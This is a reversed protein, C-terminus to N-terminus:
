SVEPSVEIPIGFLPDYHRIKTSRKNLKRNGETGKESQGIKRRLSNTLRRLRQYIGLKTKRDSNSRSTAQFLWSKGAKFKTPKKKSKKPGRRRRRRYKRKKPVSSSKVMVPCCVHRPFIRCNVIMKWCFLPVHLFDKITGLSRKQLSILVTCDVNPKAVM